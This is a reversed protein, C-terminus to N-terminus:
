KRSIKAVETLQRQLSKEYIGTVKWKFEVADTSDGHELEAHKAMFSKESKKEFEKGHEKHREYLNRATEGDYVRTKGEKECNICKAQYTVNQKRCKTQKKGENTKCVNCDDKNCNGEFPDKKVLIDKLKMGSKSVIKIRIDDSIKHKEETEKLIKVLEDNETADVFM